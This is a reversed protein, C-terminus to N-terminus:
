DEIISMRKANPLHNSLQVFLTPAGQGPFILVAETTTLWNSLYHIDPNPGRGSYLLLTSVAMREMRERVQRYRRSYEEASFALYLPDHPMSTEKDREKTM